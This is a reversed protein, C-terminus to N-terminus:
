LRPSFKGSPPQHYQTRPFQFQPDLLYIPL